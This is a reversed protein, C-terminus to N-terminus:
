SSVCNPSRRPAALRGDGVGLNSPRKGAFMTEGQTLATHLATGAIAGAGVLALVLLIRTLMRARSEPAFSAIDVDVCVRFLQREVANCQLLQLGLDATGVMGEFCPLNTVGGPLNGEHCALRQLAGDFDAIDQDGRAIATGNIHAIHSLYFQTGVAIFPPYGIDGLPQSLRKAGM